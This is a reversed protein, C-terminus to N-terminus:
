RVVRPLRLRIRTGPADSLPAAVPSEVTIQGGHEEIVWKALALGLGFGAQNPAAQEFRQFIRAQKDSPIGPGADTVSLDVNEAALDCSLRVQGGTRGHRIANRVLGVLVQRLWNRDALVEGPGPALDLVMGASACEARVEEGVEELLASLSTEELSLALSGSDSRAVRLLDDIRRNLRAARTEITELVESAEPATQRGLQAEMLIVTLPTRLEHSIDAFLRRRSEDVAELRANASRLAVTRDYIVENLRDWDAQVDAQREALAQAARNTEDFLAGIEDKRTDPLAVAFDQTGIQRAAGRLLDLRRFQPHILGFYFAAAMVLSLCAMFIAAWTFRFRLSEIGVLTERRFLAEGNIAENLLPDFSNAFNDVVPRLQAADRGYQSLGRLSQDLAAHMRALTLSQTAHRSQRDIGVARADTVAAELDHNLRVFTRQISDVVPALRDARVEAPLDRQLAETAVVLFTSVQTSLTAYRAMRAEAALAAEIRSGVQAMGLLLTVATLVTGFTLAVAGAALRTRLSFGKRPRKM